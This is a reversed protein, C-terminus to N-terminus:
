LVGMTVPDPETAPSSITLREIEAIQDATLVGIRQMIDWVQARELPGPQVYADRNLEIRTGRPLLWQSLASMVAQAKPRLGARWHYDFLATVNSYTMSDGGSPLGLLFPPVGCLVAIRSEHFQELDVLAMDRPNTQLPTLTIAGSLVAPQGTRRVRSEWWQDLLRNTEQETLQDPSTIVYYPVGGGRAFEMGYRALVGAAVVRAQGAELPGHGRADDTSSKYRIHLLDDTVDLGGISYRRLGDVMDANVLWPAVVHFRAPYGDAYPATQLVFVEGTGYDWFLEKAFEEWSTYRDPDPNESWSPLRVRRRGSVGYVPMSSLVSANLDLAAWATDVLEGLRGQGWLPTCWHDPWGAWASPVIRTSHAPGFEGTIEVGCPDGGTAVDDGVTAPPVDGPENGNSVPRFRGRKEVSGFQHWFAMALM